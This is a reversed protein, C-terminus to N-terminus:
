LLELCKEYVMDVTIAENAENCHSCDVTAGCPTQPHEYNIYTGTRYGVTDKGNVLGGCIVVMPIGYGGMIHNTFGDYGVAYSAFSMIAVSKRVDESKINVVNKLKPEKYQGGPLIRVMQVHDSLRNALEQYKDFGWNKNNGFFSSKYDPNIIFFRGKVGRNHLAIHAYDVEEHTLKVRFPKPQYDRWVIRNRERRDEYYDVHIDSKERTDRANVSIEGDKKLWPIGKFFPSWGSGAVPRISKGTQEHIREAEGLFMIDDGMGM